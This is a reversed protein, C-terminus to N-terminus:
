FTLIVETIWIQILLQLFYIAIRNDDLNAVIGGGRGWVSPLVM